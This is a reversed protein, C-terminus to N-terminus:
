KKKEYGEKIVRSIFEIGCDCCDGYDYEWMSTDVGYQPLEKILKEIFEAETYKIEDSM